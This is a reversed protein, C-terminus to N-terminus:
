RCWYPWLTQVYAGAVNRRPSYATCTHCLGDREPIQDFLCYCICGRGFGTRSCVMDAGGAQRFRASSRREAVGVEQGGAAVVAAIPEPATRNDAEEEKGECRAPTVRCTHMWTGNDKITVPLIRCCPAKAMYRITSVSINRPSFVATVLYCSTVEAAM